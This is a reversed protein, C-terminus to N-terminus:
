SKFFLHHGVAACPTLGKAWYPATLETVAYYNDGGNTIDDLTGAMARSAFSAAKQYYINTEDLALMQPLNPDRPNWCSFQYPHLCVSRVDNGWWDPHNVRNMIVNAVAQTGRDGEGRAEGYLTLAFIELDSKDAVLPAIM